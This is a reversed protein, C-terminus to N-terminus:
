YDRRKRNYKRRTALKGVTPNMQTLAEVKIAKLCNVKAYRSADAIHDYDGGAAGKLPTGSGFGPEGEVPYRYGGLSAVYLRPCAARDIRYVLRGGSDTKELLRNYVTLQDQFGLYCYGPYFENTNLTTISRGTDKKQNGAPDCYDLVGSCFTRDNWFPFVKETLERVQRCQTEVDSATASYEFLDWWYENKEHEWYASWVVAQTTGFDWGRILYAGKPFGLGEAAHEQSFAWFVPKGEFAEAYEGMIMRAYMAPNKRYTKKVKDVYGPPLNHANEDTPIHWFRITTDKDEKAEKELQAIWHRPSPPNSDLIMCTDRIFGKEDCTSPDSGKWRLCAVALDLDEREFQDAEVLVLMSCEFGRFRSARYQVSPVGAFQLWSCYKSGITDIWRSKETDSARPNLRNYENYIEVAKRSPLRFIRGGEIKKFLSTKTETYGTGMNAFVQEFTELTTDRNSEETKRLIYVKAGANHFAHGNCAVAIATTKGSGRGGILVRTPVNSLHFETIKPGPKYWDEIAQTVVAPGTPVPQM